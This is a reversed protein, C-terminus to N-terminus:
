TANVLNRVLNLKGRCERVIHLKRSERVVPVQESETKRCPQKNAEWFSGVRM